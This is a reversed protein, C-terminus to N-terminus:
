SQAVRLASICQFASVISASYDSLVKIVTSFSSLYVATINHRCQKDSRISTNSDYNQTLFFTCANVSNKTMINFVFFCFFTAM